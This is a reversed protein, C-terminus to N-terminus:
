KWREMCYMKEVDYEIINKKWGDKKKLDLINIERYTKPNHPMNKYPTMWIVFDLDHHLFVEVFKRDRFGFHLNGKVKDGPKTGAYFKEVQMYGPSEDFILFGLKYGPHNKCYGDIKQLHKDVIRKFNEVYIEYNNESANSMDPIVLMTINSERVSPLGNEKRMDDAKKIFKSELANPSSSGIVYDDVRMVELMYKYKESYFDPPPVDKASSNTWNGFEKERYLSLFFKKGEYTPNVFNIMRSNTQQLLEIINTENDFYNMVAGM